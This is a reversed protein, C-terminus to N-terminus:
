SDFRGMGSYKRFREELLVPVSKACLVALHKQLAKRVEEATQTPDRHAGGAPETVIEDIVGMELLSKATIKLAEAAEPAHEADRWLISACGEPSIVSYVANTLMLVVDGVGIGIAGGSGGEGSVLTVIPVQIRAMETLNHAIAEAQGREEAELGPYAGATDIFTIIPLNWKEALKFLRLAKRYGEPKAMGFNREANEEATKGKNHGVLVVRYDGLTAFGGILARDDAIGRDGHLEVFGSFMMSIFDQLVPRQPHRAVQLRQWATLGDYVREKYAQARKKLERIQVSLDLKNEASLKQLEAIKSEIDIITKEFELDM